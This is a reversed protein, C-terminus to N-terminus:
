NLVQSNMIAPRKNTNLPMNVNFGCPLTAQEM